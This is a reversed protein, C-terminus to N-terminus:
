SRPTTRPWFPFPTAPPRLRDFNVAVMLDTGGAIPVADPRERKMELAEALTSPALIDIAGAATMASM